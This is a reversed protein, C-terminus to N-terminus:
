KGVCMRHGDTVDQKMAKCQRLKMCLTGLEITVEKILLAYTVNADIYTYVIYMCVFYVHM